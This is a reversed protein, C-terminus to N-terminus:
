TLWRLLPLRRHRELRCAVTELIAIIEPHIVDEALVETEAARAAVLARMQFPRASRLSGLTESDGAIIRVRRGAGAEPVPEDHVNGGIDSFQREVGAIRLRRFQGGAGQLRAGLDATQLVVLTALEVDRKLRAVADDALALRDGNAAILADHQVALLARLGYAVTAYQRHDDSRIEFGPRGAVSVLFGGDARPDVQMLAATALDVDAQEIRAAGHERAIVEARDLLDHALRKQMALKAYRAADTLPTGYMFDELRSATAHCKPDRRDELTGIARITDQVESLLRTGGPGTTAPESASAAFAVSAFVLVAFAGAM